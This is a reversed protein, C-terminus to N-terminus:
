MLKDLVNNEIYHYHIFDFIGSVILIIIVMGGVLVITGIILYQVVNWTAIINKVGPKKTIHRVILIYSIYFLIISVLEAVIFLLGILNNVYEM